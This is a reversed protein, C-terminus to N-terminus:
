FREMYFSEFLENPSVVKFMYIGWSEFTNFKSSSLLIFIFM